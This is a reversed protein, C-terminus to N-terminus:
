FTNMKISVTKKAGFSFPIASSTQPRRASSNETRPLSLKQVTSNNTEELNHNVLDDKHISIIFSHSASDVFKKNPLSVLIMLVVRLEM